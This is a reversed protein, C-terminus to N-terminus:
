LKPVDIPHGKIDLIKVLDAWVREQVQSGSANYVWDPVKSDMIECDSLFKGHSQVGAVAGHMLTRSGMEATRGVLTKMVAFRVKFLGTAQRSLETRCFGPNVFNVVVNTQSVPFRAALERVAYLQLQKSLPYRPGMVTDSESLTDFINSKTSELIGKPIFAVESGIVTLHVKIGFKKASQQLKPMARIALLMTGLVNVTLTTEFGEALTFDLMAVSANEILADIRDLTDLKKAFAEVSGLSALDLEWVEAVNDRGTENRIATVAANGKELSRVALIVRDAGLKVFHKAAQFGLGTNSGTVIYTGGKVDSRTPVLPLTKFQSSINM